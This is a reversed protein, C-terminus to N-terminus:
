DTFELDAGMQKLAADFYALGRSICGDDVICSEGDSQLAALLVAAGSWLDRICVNAGHLVHVGTVVAACDETLSVDGGFRRLLKAQQLRGGFVRERIVTVGDAKLAAALLLPHVDTAFAPYPGTVIPNMPAWLKGDSQLIM